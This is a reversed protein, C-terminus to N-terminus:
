LNTTKPISDNIIELVNHERVVSFRASKVMKLLVYLNHTISILFFRYFACGGSSFELTQGSGVRMHVVPKVRTVVICTLLQLM